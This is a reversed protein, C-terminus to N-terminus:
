HSRTMVFEAIGALYDAKEGLPQISALASEYYNAALKKSEDIGLLSVFTSKNDKEDKGPTKGLVDKNAEKDLIDDKIQFILGISKSYADICNLMNTDNNESAILPMLCSANILAGTKFQHMTKLENLTIKKNTNKIDLAQGKAMGKLGIANSFIHIIELRKEPKIPLSPCSLCSFSLSQLADGALLATSEGFKKHCSLKGRRLDDNDMCPMDDHVLSYAHLFEIACVIKEIAIPDVEVIEAIAFVLTSRIRKGGNLISYRIAENLDSEHNSEPLNKELMSEILTQKKSLWEHFNNM